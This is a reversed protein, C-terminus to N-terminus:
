LSLLSRHYISWSVDIAELEADANKNFLASPRAAGGFSSSSPYQDSNQMVEIEEEESM